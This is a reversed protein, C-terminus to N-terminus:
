DQMIYGAGKVTTILHDAGVKSLRKRLAAIQVKVTQDSVESDSPWLAKFLDEGSFYQNKHRLFFEFLAAEVASLRVDASDNSALRLRPDFKIGKISLTDRVMARPRRKIAAIRALLERMQFPKTLYDDGGASLGSEINEVGTRGTLFIIHADVGSQRFKTCVELGSMDPLQWDLIVFDYSFNRLLQMGDSGNNAVEVLWGHFQLFEKLAQATQADDEVILLKEM